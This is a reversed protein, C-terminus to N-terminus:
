EGFFYSEDIWFDAVVKGERRYIVVVIQDETLHYNEIVKKIRKNLNTFNKFYNTELFFDDQTTIEEYGDENFEIEYQEEICKKVWDFPCNELLYRDIWTPFNTIPHKQEPKWEPYWDYFYRLAPEFNLSCWNFLETGQRKTAYIKDISAM